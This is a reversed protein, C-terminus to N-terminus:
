CWSCTTEGSPYGHHQTATSVSSGEWQLSNLWPLFVPHGFHPWCSTIKAIFLAILLFPSATKSILPCNWIPWGSLIILTISFKQLAQILTALFHNLHWLTVDHVHQWTVILFYYKACMYLELMLIPLIVIFVHCIKHRKKCFFFFFFCGLSVEIM